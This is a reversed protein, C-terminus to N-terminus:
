EMPPFCFLKANHVLLSVIRRSSMKANHVLLSVIRRSSMDEWSRDIYGTSIRGNRELWLFSFFVRM